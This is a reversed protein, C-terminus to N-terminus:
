LVDLRSIANSYLCEVAEATRLLDYNRIHSRLLRDPPPKAIVAQMCQQLADVDGVPYTLKKSIPLILDETCGCADSAICPLDSAMAENVVLGWTEREDSPLVLCDAAAYAQSVATQNLFGVFSAAPAVKDRSSQQDDIDFYVSCAQRLDEGLEGTGVFLIHLPRSIQQKLGRVAAILDWPRKKPILKGAFLFCFADEPILWQRRLKQRSPRCSSAQAAFWANDVCYPASVLRDPSIGQQLYFERNAKGIYFFQDVHTLLHTRFYRSVSGAFGKRSSRLNTEGRLWVDAKVRRAAWVAQWYAAVQWGQIWLVRADLKKLLEGFGPKLRLWLFSDQSLGSRVDLFQHDYGGLLDIDWELERSFGPDFRSRLGQDSMYLVRLPVKGRAALAKWLPVQYQIPHTTLVALM